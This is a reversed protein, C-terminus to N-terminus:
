LGKAAGDSSRKSRMWFDVWSCTLQMGEGVQRLRRIQLIVQNISRTLENASDIDFKGLSHHHVIKYDGLVVYHEYIRREQHVKFRCQVTSRHEAPFRRVASTNPHQSVAFSLCTPELSLVGVDIM